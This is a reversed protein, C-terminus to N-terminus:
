WADISMKNYMMFHPLCKVAWVVVVAAVVVPTISTFSKLELPTQMYM